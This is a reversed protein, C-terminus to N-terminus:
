DVIRKRGGGKERRPKAYTPIEKKRIQSIRDMGCGKEGQVAVNTRERVRLRPVESVAIRGVEDKGGGLLFLLFLLPSPPSIINQFPPPM